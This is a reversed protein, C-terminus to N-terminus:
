RPVTTGSAAPSFAQAVSAIRSAHEIESGRWIGDGPQAVLEGRFQGGRGGVAIQLSDAVAIQRALAADDRRQHLRHSRGRGVIPRRESPQGVFQLGVDLGAHGL